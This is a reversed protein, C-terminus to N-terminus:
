NVGEGSGCGYGEDSDVDLLRRQPRADALQAPVLVSRHQENSM